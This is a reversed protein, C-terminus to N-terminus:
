LNSPATATNPKANVTNPMDSWKTKDIAASATLPAASLILTTVRKVNICISVGSSIRPRTAAPSAPLWYWGDDAFLASWEDWRQEDLLRAEHVVFDVLQERIPATM